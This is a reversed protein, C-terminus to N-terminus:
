PASYHQLFSLEIFRDHKEIQLLEIAPIMSSLAPRSDPSNALPEDPSTRSRM